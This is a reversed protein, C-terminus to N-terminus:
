CACGTTAASREFRMEDGCQPCSPPAEGAVDADRIREGCDDCWYAGASDATRGGGRNPSRTSASLVERVTGILGM